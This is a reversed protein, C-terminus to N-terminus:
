RLRADGRRRGREAAAPPSERRLGGTDPRPGTSREAEPGPRGDGGDGGNQEGEQRRLPLGGPRRGDRRNGRSPIMGIVTGAHYLYRRVAWPTQGPRPRTM